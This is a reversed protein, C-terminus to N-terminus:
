SDNLGPPPDALCFEQENCARLRTVISASTGWGDFQLAHVTVGMLLPDMLRASRGPESPVFCYTGPELNKDDISVFVGSPDQLSGKGNAKELAEFVAGGSIGSHLPQGKLPASKDERLYVRILSPPM